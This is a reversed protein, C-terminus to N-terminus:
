PKAPEFAIAWDVEAEKFQVGQVWLNKGADVLHTLGKNRPSHPLPRYGRPIYVFAKGDLGAARQYTGSLVLQKEDWVLRKIEQHGGLVHMNTAIVQPRTPQRHILLIRATGPALSLTVRANHSGLFKEEWFEFVAVEAGAPLGLSSLEVTREQPRDEFNFVAVADWQGADNKCRMHWLSPMEREFLDLPRAMPNGAPLCQQMMRIRPLQLPRFDDSFSISCGGLTMLSLKFRAEEVGAKMGVSMDCVERHYLRDNVWYSAALLPANVRELHLWDALGADGTDDGIYASSALGVSMLPPTQCYRIWANQGAGRRIAEMAQRLAPSGAIFDIKYYRAGEASLRAFTEEIWKEAAPHSADLLSMEPNPVWFWRGTSTPKGQDNKIMWEPHDRFLRSNFAVQTPAIWLGLKMGYRSRLQESLWRFGHPFRENPVWDGCVDGRQWGHDLQIVDLGLPRFHRAAIAAHALVIEENIGMRIPYWSCWLANAGTRVPKPALAAAADGYRELADYGNEEVSLWVPDLVLTQGPRLVRGGLSLGAGLATGGEGAQFRAHVTPSGQGASLLGIALGGGSRRQVLALVGDSACQQEAEAASEEDPAPRCAPSCGPFGVAAPARMIDALHWWGRDAASLDLVKAMDLTVDRGTKNVIQACVVVNPRGHYLRISRELQLGKGWRQRIELGSGLADTQPAAEAKVSQPALTQGGAEVLFRVRRVAAEVGGLWTADWVGDAEDLVVCVRDNGLRVKGGERTCVVKDGAAKPRAAALDRFREPWISAARGLRPILRQMRVELREIEAALAFRHAEGLTDWQAFRLSLRLWQNETSNVEGRLGAFRPDNKLGLKEAVAALEKRRAASGVLREAAYGKLESASLRRGYVEIEYVDTHASPGGSRTILLRVTTVKVPDFTALWSASKANEITAVTTFQDARSGAVQVQSDRIGDNDIREGFVAVATVEQFGYLRLTIWQPALRSPAISAVWKSSRSGDVARAPSYQGGESGLASSASVNAVSVRRMDPPMWDGRIDQVQGAVLLPVAGALVVTAGIAWYAGWSFQLTRPRTRKGALVTLFGAHVSGSFVSRVRERQVKCNEQYVGMIRRSAM